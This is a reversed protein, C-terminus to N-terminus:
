FAFSEDYNPSRPPCKKNDLPSSESTPSCEAWRAFMGPEPEACRSVGKSASKLTRKLKLIHREADRTARGYDRTKKYDRSNDYDVLNFSGPFFKSNPPRDERHVITYRNNHWYCRRAALNTHFFQQAAPFGERYLNESSTKSCFKSLRSTYAGRPTFRDRVEAGGRHPRKKRRSFSRQHWSRRPSAAVQIISFATNRAQELAQSPSDTLPLKRAIESACPLLPFFARWFPPDGVLARAATHFLPPSHSPEPTLDVYHPFHPRGELAQIISFATKRAQELAQSPSDTLPLKRAIEFESAAAANEKADRWERYVRMRNKKRPYSPSRSPIRRIQYLPSFPLLVLLSNVLRGGYHVVTEVSQLLMARRSLADAVVNRKGAKHRIVCSSLFFVWKSEKANLKEQSQNFRRVQHDTHVVFGKAISLKSCKETSEGNFNQIMRPTM